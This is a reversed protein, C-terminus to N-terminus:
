STQPHDPMSAAELLLAEKSRGTAAPFSGGVVPRPFGPETGLMRFFPETFETLRFPCPGPETIDHVIYEALDPETRITRPERPSLSIM